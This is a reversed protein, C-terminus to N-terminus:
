VPRRVYRVRPRCNCGAHWASDATLQPPLCRGCHELYRYLVLASKALIQRTRYRTGEHCSASMDRSEHVPSLVLPTSYEQHRIAMQFRDKIQIFLQHPVQVGFCLSECEPYDTGETGETGNTEIHELIITNAGSLSNSVIVNM